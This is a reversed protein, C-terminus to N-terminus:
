TQKVAIWELKEPEIGLDKLAVYAVPNRIRVWAEPVDIAAYRDFYITVRGVEPFPAAGAGSVRGLFFGSRHRHGARRNTRGNSRTAVFWEMSQVRALGAVWNGSWGRLRLEDFTEGTFVMVTDTM